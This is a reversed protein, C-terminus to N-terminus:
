LRARSQFNNGTDTICKVIVRNPIQIMSHVTRIIRSTGVIGRDFDGLVAISWERNNRWALCTTDQTDAMGNETEVNFSCTSRTHCELFM